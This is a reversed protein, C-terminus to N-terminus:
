TVSLSLREKLLLLCVQTSACECEQPTGIHDAEEASQEHFFRKSRVYYELFQLNQFETLVYKVNEIKKDLILPFNQGSPV